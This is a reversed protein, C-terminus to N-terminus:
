LGTASALPQSTAVMGTPAYVTSRGALTTPRQAPLEGAAVGLLALALFRRPVSARPLPSGFSDAARAWTVRATAVEHGEGDEVSM